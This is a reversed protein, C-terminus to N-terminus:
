EPPQKVVHGSLCVLKSIGLLWAQLYFGVYFLNNILATLFSPFPFFFSLFPLVVSQGRRIRINWNWLLFELITLFYFESLFPTNYALLYCLLLIIVFWIVELMVGFCEDFDSLSYSSSVIYWTWELWLWNDIIWRLLQNLYFSAIDVIYWCCTIRTKSGVYRCRFMNLLLVRFLFTSFRLLHGTLIQSYQGRVENAFYSAPFPRRWRICM